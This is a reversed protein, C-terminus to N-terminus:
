HSLKTIRTLTHYSHSTRRATLWEGEIPNPRADSRYTRPNESAELLTEEGLFRIKRPDEKASTNLKQKLFLDANYPFLAVQEQLITSPIQM